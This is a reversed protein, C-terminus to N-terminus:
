SPLPLSTNTLHLSAGSRARAHTPDHSRARSPTRLYGSTIPHSVMNHGLQASVPLLPAGEAATDKVFSRIKAAHSELAASGEAVGRGGGFLLESKNQLVCVQSNNFGMQTLIALHSATQPAPVAENAAVLLLAGDFASAGTLMTNILDHHGPTDVFSVHKVVYTPGECGNCPPTPLSPDDGGMTVFCVPAPCSGACRCVKCNAYGLKVTAGHLKREQSHQQTRKGSLYRCVSSKGHAVHGVLGINLTPQLVHTDDEDIDVAASGDNSGEHVALREGGGGGGGGGGGSGDAHNAPKAQSAAKTASMAAQREQAAAAALTQLDDNSLLQQAMQACESLFASAAQQRHQMATVTVEYTPPSVVTVKPKSVGAPPVM